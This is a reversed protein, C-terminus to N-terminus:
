AAGQRRQPVAPNGAARRHQDRGRGTGAGAESLRMIRRRVSGTPPSDVAIAAEGPAASMIRARTRAAATGSGPIRGALELRPEGSSDRGRHSQVRPLQHGWDSIDTTVVNTGTAPHHFTTYVVGPAVRTTVDAKLVIEGMRSTISVRDGSRVGRTEADSPHIELRDEDLWALNATRRTQTGVNYQTLMRGTTLLLPYKRNTREDTPQYDTLMFRGKGRVFQAEHMIPTGEPATDNCPWQVSGLRDLKEFTVGAFDPTLSAVEAMIEEASQYNMPYGLKASLAAVVEWESKGSKPTMVQRVRNIRREANTFTGDKELFSTGPLFIHAFKATENLFLDQVIVCDM